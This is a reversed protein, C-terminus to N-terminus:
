CGTTGAEAVPALCAQETTLSYLLFHGPLQALLFILAGWLCPWHQADPLPLNWHGM